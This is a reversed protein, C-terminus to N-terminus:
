LCGVLADYISTTKGPLTANLPDSGLAARLATQTAGIEVTCRRTMTDAKLVGKTDVSLSAGAFSWTCRSVRQTNRNVACTFRLGSIDSYDGECFTDGCVDDFQTNLTRETERWAAAAAEDTGSLYEGLDAYFSKDGAPPPAGVVGSFCDVLGDYFSKSTGPLPTQLANDGAKSLVDLMTKATSGTTIPCTWVRADGTIKGTRGDVYDINGGLVWACDKLKKSTTTSACAIRVTTLNSYDGSCITDGCINDFGHALSSRVAIWRDYDAGQLTELLDGYTTTLDSETSAADGSAGTEATCGAAFPAALVLLSSMALVSRVRPFNM